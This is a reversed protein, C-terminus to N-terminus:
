FINRIESIDHSVGDLLLPCDMLKDLSFHFNSSGSHINFAGERYPTFTEGPHESMQASSYSNHDIRPSKWPHFISPHDEAFSDTTPLCKWRFDTNLSRPMVLEFDQQHRDFSVNNTLLFPDRDRLSVLLNSSGLANKTDCDEAENYIPTCPLALPFRKTKELSCENKIYPGFDRTRFSNSYYGPLSDFDLSYKSCSPKADLVNDMDNQHDVNWSTAQRTSYYNPLSHFDLYYKSRLSSPCLAKADVTNDMGKSHDIKWSDWGPFLNKSIDQNIISSDVKDEERELLLRHPESRSYEIPCCLEDLEELHCSSAYGYREIPLCFFSGHQTYLNRIMDSESSCNLNVLEDGLHTEVDYKCPPFDSVSTNWKSLVTEGLRGSHIDPIDKDWHRTHALHLGKELDDSDWFTPDKRNSDMDVKSPTSDDNENGKPFLRSLLSSVLNFGKAHLKEIDCFSADAVCQLLKQRKAYFIGKETCQSGSNVSTGEIPSFCLNQDIPKVNNPIDKGRLQNLENCEGVSPSLFTHHDTPRPLGEPFTLRFAENRANMTASANSTEGSRDNCKSSEMREDERHTAYSNVCGASNKVKKFYAYESTKPADSKTSQTVEYKRSSVGQADNPLKDMEPDAFRVRKIKSTDLPNDSGQNRAPRIKHPDESSTRRSKLRRRM